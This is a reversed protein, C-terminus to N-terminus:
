GNVASRRSPMLSSLGEGAWPVGHPPCLPPVAVGEVCGVRPELAAPWSSDRKPLLEPSNGDPVEGGAGMAPTSGGEQEWFGQQATGSQATLEAGSPCPPVLRGGHQSRGQLPWRLNRRTTKGRHSPCALGPPAATGLALSPNEELCAKCLFACCRERQTTEIWSGLVNFQFCCLSCPFCSHAM